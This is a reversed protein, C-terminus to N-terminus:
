PPLPTATRWTESFLTDLTHALPWPATRDLVVHPAEWGTRARDTGPDMLYPSFSVITQDILVIRFTPLADYLRVTFSPHAASLSRLMEIPQVGGSSWRLAIFRQYSESAPDILLFQVNGSVNDLRELLRTFRALVYSDTVWKTALIGSFRLQSVTQSICELPELKSRRLELESAPSIGLTQVLQSVRQQDEHSRQGRDIEFLADNHGSTIRNITYRLESSVGKPFQEQIRALMSSTAAEGGLLSMRARFLLAWSQEDHSDQSLLQEIRSIAKEIRPKRRSRLEVYIISRKLCDWYREFDHYRSFLFEDDHEDAFPLAPNAKWMAHLELLKEYLDLQEPTVNDVDTIYCVGYENVLKEFVFADVDGPDIFCSYGAISRVRDQGIAARLRRIYGPVSSPSVTRHGSRTLYRALEEKTLSRGRHLMLVRLAAGEQGTIAEEVAAHDPYCGPTAQMISFHM